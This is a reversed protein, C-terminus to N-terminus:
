DHFGNFVDTLEEALSGSRGWDLLSRLELVEGLSELVLVVVALLPL